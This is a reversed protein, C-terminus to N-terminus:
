YKFHKAEMIWYAQRSETLLQLIIDNISMYIYLHKSIQQLFASSRFYFYLSKSLVHSNDQPSIFM